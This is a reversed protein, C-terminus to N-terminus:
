GLWPALAADLAEPGFPKDLVPRGASAIFDPYWDQGAGGTMFVFRAAVQPAEASVQRFLTAGDMEGRTFRLDCLVVAYDHRRLHALADLGSTCVDVEARPRLLRAVARGMLPDDDVVLM